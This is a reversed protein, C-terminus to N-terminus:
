GAGLLWRLRAEVVEADVLDALHGGVDPVATANPVHRALWEGHARPVLVDQAGYVVQAPARVHAVDFGWPKVFALTDDVWGDVGQEFAARFSARHIEHHEPRALVERDAAGYDIGFTGSPDHELEELIRAAWERVGARLAEEGELAWGTERVNMEDMGALWDLGEADFPAVGVICAVRTVRDPLLAAVALAHPGGGSRGTVAFREIGLADALAAVDAACDAVSRGRHRDSGGYGPRDYTVLRVGLRRYLGEDHFRRVRSGPTGHLSLVPAGAPDGWEAAMLTRGDALRVPVAERM